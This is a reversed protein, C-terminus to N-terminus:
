MKMLPNGPDKERSVLVVIEERTEMTTTIVAMSEMTVKPEGLVDRLVVVLVLREDQSTDVEEVINKVVMMVMIKRMTMIIKRTAHHPMGIHAVATANYVVMGVVVTMMSKETTMMMMSRRMIVVVVMVVVVVEEEVVVIVIVIMRKRTISVVAVGV